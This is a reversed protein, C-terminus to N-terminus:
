VCDFLSISRACELENGAGRRSGRRRSGPLITQGHWSSARPTGPSGASAHLFATTRPLRGPRLCPIKPPIGLPLRASAPDASRIEAFPSLGTARAPSLLVPTQAPVPAALGPPTPPPALFPVQPPSPVTGLSFRRTRVSDRGGNTNQFSNSATACASKCSAPSARFQPSTPGTQLPM